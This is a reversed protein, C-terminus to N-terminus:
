NKLAKRLAQTEPRLNDLFASPAFETLKSYFVSVDAGEIELIRKCGIKIAELERAFIGFVFIVYYNQSKKLIDEVDRQNLECIIGYAVTNDIKDFPSMGFLRKYVIIAIQEYRNLEDDIIDM